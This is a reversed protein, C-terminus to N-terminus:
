SLAMGVTLLTAGPYFPSNVAEAPLALEQLLWGQGVWCTNWTSLNRYSMRSESSVRRSMMARNWASISFPRPFSVLGVAETFISGVNTLAMGSPEPLHPEPWGKGGKEYRLQHTGTAQGQGKGVEGCRQRLEALQTSKPDM